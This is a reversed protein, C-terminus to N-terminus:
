KRGPPATSQDPQGSAWSAISTVLWDGADVGLDHGAEPHVALDADFRRALDDSCRPDVMQDGRGVLVLVPQPLKRPARFTAAAALQRALKARGFPIERHLAANRAALADKREADATTTILDLVGRERRRVDRVLPLRALTRWATPRLRHRPRSAGGGSTNGLAVRALDDPWRAAWAMAVMGGLSLGIVGWPGDHPRQEVFRRRVDAAMEDVTWPSPRGAETGVGPLDLCLVDGGSAEALAEPVGVWHRQDQKMGKLLVWHM